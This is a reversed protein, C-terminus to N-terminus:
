KRISSKRTHLDPPRCQTTPRITVTPRVTLTPTTPAAM